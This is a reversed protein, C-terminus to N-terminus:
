NHQLKKKLNEVDIFFQETHKETTHQIAKLALKINTIAKTKEELLIFARAASEYAYALYFGDVKEQKCLKINQEAFLLANEGDVIHAYARSIQWLSISTNTTTHKPVQQWLYYSTHM